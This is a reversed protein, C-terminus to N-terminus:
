KKPGPKEISTDLYGSYDLTDDSILFSSPNNFVLNPDGQFIPTITADSATLPNLTNISGMVTGYLSLESPMERVTIITTENFRSVSSSVTTGFGFLGGGELKSVLTGKQDRVGYGGFVGDDNGSSDASYAYLKMLLGQNFKVHHSEKLQTSTAIDLVKTVIKSGEPFNDIIMRRFSEKKEETENFQEHSIKTVENTERNILLVTDITVYSHNQVAVLPDLSSTVDGGDQVANGIFLACAKSEIIPKLGYSYIPDGDVHKNIQSGLLKSGNYRPNKWSAMDLLSDDFEVSYDKNIAM